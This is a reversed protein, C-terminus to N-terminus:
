GCGGAVCDSVSQLLPNNSSRGVTHINNVRIHGVFIFRNIVANIYTAQKNIPAHKIVNYQLIYM